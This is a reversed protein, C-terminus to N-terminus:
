LAVACVDDPNGSLCDFGLVRAQADYAFPEGTYPNRYDSGRVVDAVAASSREETEAQVLVLSIRGGLDHVRTIYDQWNYGAAMRKLIFKGGLNYLPPPFARISFDVPEQARRRVFAEPELTARLRLNQIMTLYFENLTANEQLVLSTPLNLDGLMVVLSKHSLIAIRLEALFTEGIDREAASLPTVFTRLRALEPAALERERLLASVFALNNRLGALAVMKSVLSQGDELMTRWLRFDDGAREIFRLTSEQSLSRALRVRSVAMLLGYPPLPTYADFEQNEAFRPAALIREYRELVLALRPHMQMADAVEAQLAGACDLEFRANCELAPLANRWAEDLATGGLIGALEDDAITIQQGAAYRARLRGVIELGVRRSDLDDAAPLGYILPYANGDMSVEAPTQLAALEPLLPEDFWALNIVVTFALLGVILMGVRIALGKVNFRRKAQTNM